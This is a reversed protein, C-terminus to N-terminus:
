SGVSMYELWAKYQNRISLDSTGPATVKGSEVEDQGLYRHLDVWEISGAKASEQIRYYCDLDDPGVMSGPSNILRSYRLTRQLMSQPAGKLRFTWSELVTSDVSVPRVVRISQIGDRITCSPYCCANHRNFSLIDAMGEEGYAAKMAELYEPYMEYHSFISKKGGMYGHGNKLATVGMGDFFEYSGAFPDIVEAEPPPTTGEPLSSLYNRVADSTAAHACMPHMADHLNEIFFKWNCPHLFRHCNKGTVEVEGEPSRDCMNDITLKIEGLFDLLDPATESLSAFVFGRYIEVRALKPMSFQEDCREFGTNEYGCPHPIAHIGGDTRYTWGHYPCRLLKTNGTKQQAVIAGRHGCRNHLVNVTGSKADRIMIVPYSGVTTTYFDGPDRVQSEHGVYIWSRGWVRDMELQFIEPDSYVSASVRGPEVLDQIQKTTLTM